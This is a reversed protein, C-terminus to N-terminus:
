GAYDTASSSNSWSFLVEAAAGDLTVELCRNPISHGFEPHWTTESLLAQGKSVRWNVERGNPLRLSGERDGGEVVVDPHFHFRAVANAFRGEVQDIVAFFNDGIQWTRRHIPRGRLRQYGNHACQIVYRDTDEALQLDFTRARRAVRFGAWVESSDQGDITVTNHAATGRQRQREASKEYTSTGSDVIVRQGFLSLEFTLTDAHAHGPLYDPGIPATDLFAVVRGKQVRIYGTSDFYKVGERVTKDWCYGLRAAYDFITKPKPAIGFAADNFLVIEGDPHVMGELWSAMKVVADEWLPPIQKGYVHLLNILDLLDELILAHYMPSLEFHGGDALVQEPIQRDLIALGMSSWDEAEQGEFFIGGFVLAKANVFLHNGLLHYELRKSLYRVQVALSHLWDNELRNGSLCWKIWNVIRLSLPYPEWGSGNGPPNEAIWRAILHRHWEQRAQAGVANLDDFYHLNYRWLKGRGAPDWGSSLDGEENLFFFGEPGTM